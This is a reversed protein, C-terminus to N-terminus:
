EYWGSRRFLLVAGLGLALVVRKNQRFGYRRLFFGALVIVALVLILKSSLLFIMGMFFGVLFIRMGLPAAPFARGLAEQGDASLLFIQAFLVYVSFFVANHSIPSTLTHYFFVEGSEGEGFRHAAVGLCYVSAAVVMACYCLMLSGFAREDAFRGALLAFAVAVLTADKSIVDAGAKTNHTHLMGAAEIVFFLFYALFLKNRFAGKINDLIKGEWLRCAGLLIICYSNLNFLSFVTTYLVALTVFFYFKKRLFIETPPSAAATM